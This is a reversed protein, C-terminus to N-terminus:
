GSAGGRIARGQDPVALGVQPVGQPLGARHPRHPALLAVEEDVRVQSTHWPVSIACEPVPRDTLVGEYTRLM